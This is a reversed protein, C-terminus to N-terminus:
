HREAEARLARRNAFALRPLGIALAFGLAPLLTQMLAYAGILRRNGGSSLAVAETTVTEVRGGGIMLTPLYQGISVAMGVAFATLLPALLMPLRLHWFIRNPGAGLCKGVLAIRIDWARFAPALSLFVYPLVFVTHILAVTVTNGQVGLSLTLVQLGPLFAIQPVLLPLYILWLGREPQHARAETELAALVLTLSLLTSFAAIGLTTASTRTLDPLAKAWNQVNLSEPLADPFPWLGAISWLALGAIGLGLTAALGLGLFQALPKLLRDAAACRFGLTAIHPILGRSTCEAARWVGLTLTVLALQLIAAAAATPLQRLSPDNMWDTIQVALTPPLNPGLIMAMEVSTMAYALVAFSPLRLYKYLTPLTTLAFGWFRGYGLSSALQGRRQADCHPLAALAMLLLFPVEKAVLGLTLTLGAPDNLLLLDPPVTWGTAWPSFLRFLWGSPAILFALGLAAAAHPLSLLPSLARLMIAFSRTGVLTAVILLTIALSLLTSALGTGLSLAIACSLGPWAWLTVFGDGKLAPALTGFLGAAIPLALGVRLIWPTLRLIQLRNLVSM